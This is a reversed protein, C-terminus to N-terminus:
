STRTGFVCYKAARVELARVARAMKRLFIFSKHLLDDQPLQWSPLRWVLFDVCEADRRVTGMCSRLAGAARRRRQGTRDPGTVTGRLWLWTQHPLNLMDLM